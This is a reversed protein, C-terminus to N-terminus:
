RHHRIEKVPIFVNNVIACSRNLPDQRRCTSPRPVELGTMCHSFTCTLVTTIVHTFFQLECQVLEDLKANLEQKMLQLNPHAEAFVKDLDTRYGGSWCAQIFERTYIIDSFPKLAARPSYCFRLDPHVCFTKVIEGSAFM